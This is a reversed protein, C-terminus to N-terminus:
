HKWLKGKKPFLSYAFPNQTDIAFRSVMIIKRIAGQEGSLLFLVMSNEEPPPAGARASPQGDDCAAFGM